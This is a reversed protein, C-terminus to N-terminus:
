LLKLLNIVSFINELYSRTKLFKCFISYKRRKLYDVRSKEENGTVAIAKYSRLGEVEIV